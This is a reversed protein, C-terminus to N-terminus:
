AFIEFSGEYTKSHNSHNQIMGREQLRPKHLLIARALIPQQLTSSLRRGPSFTREDVRTVTKQLPKM